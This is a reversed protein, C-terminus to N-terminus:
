IQAAGSGPVKGELLEGIGTAAIKARIDESRKAREFEHSYTDLTVSPRAHGAQRQVEVVDLGAAILRSIATHRLDHMSAKVGSRESAKALARAANRQSLPRGERTGFVFDEDQSHASALKRRRLLSELEPLLYVDRLGAGTKLEKLGPPQNTRARSLQHRVHIVAESFNVDRWRLGLLESVRLGTFIATAILGHWGASAHKLLAACEDASLAQTQKRTKGIPRDAKAVRKLPSESILGRALAHNFLNSLVKWVGVLTWPSLATERMETLVGVVHRPEVRQIALRGLRPGLHCRYVQRHQELTREAREGNAVLSSLMREYDGNNEGFTARSPAVAEGRDVKVALLRQMKKAETLNRAGRLTVVHWRGDLGTFGHEFRGDKPRIYLNPVGAVRVRKPQKSPEQM